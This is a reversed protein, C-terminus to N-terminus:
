NLKYLTETILKAFGEADAEIVVSCNKHFHRHLMRTYYSDLDERGNAAKRFEVVTQGRTHEGVLDVTVDTDFTKYLSPDIIYAVANADCINVTKLGRLKKSIGYFDLLEGALKGARTDIKKWEDITDFSVGAAETSNISHMVIPVGSEFVVYASEPDVWINYEAAPTVNGQLTNGGMLTIYAIKDKLEPYTLFLLAINCLPGLPALVVKEESEKLVKAILDVAKMDVPKLDHPAFVPGELGSEGHVKIGARRDLPHMMPDACGMAVPIDGRGFYSLVNLANKTTNEVTSNGCITTIAKVDIKDSALALMIAFVDDHGPDTDIIVPIKSMM